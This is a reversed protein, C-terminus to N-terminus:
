KWGRSEEELKVFTLEEELKIRKAKLEENTLDSVSSTTKYTKKTETVWNKDDKNLWSFGNVVKSRYKPTQHKNFALVGKNIMEEMGMWETIVVAYNEKKGSIGGKHSSEHLTRPHDEKFIQNTLVNEIAKCKDEQGRFIM